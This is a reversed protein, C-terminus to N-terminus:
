WTRSIGISLGYSKWKDSIGLEKKMRNNLDFKTQLGLNIRLDKTIKKQLQLTSIHEVTGASRYGLSAVPIFEGNPLTSAYTFGKTHQWLNLAVGTGFSLQWDRKIPIQMGIQIPIALTQYVQYRTSEKISLQSGIADGRIENTINNQTQTEIIVDNYVIPSQLVQIKEVLRSRYRGYTLGTSFFFGNNFSQTAIFDVQQQELFQEGEQRLNQYDEENQKLVRKPSNYTYALGLTWNKENALPITQLNSLNDLQPISVVREITLPHILSPLYNIYDKRSSPMLSYPITAGTTIKNKSGNNTTLGTNHQLKPKYDKALLLQADIKPLLINKENALTSKILSNKQNKRVAKRLINSSKSFNTHRNNEITNVALNKENLDKIAITPSTNSNLTLSSNTAITQIIEQQHKGKFFYVFITVGLISLAGWLWFPIPRKKEKKHNFDEWGAAVDFDDGLAENLDNTDNWSEHM